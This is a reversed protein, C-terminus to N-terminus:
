DRHWRPKRQWASPRRGFLPNQGAIQTSMEVLNVSAIVKGCQGKQGHKGLV